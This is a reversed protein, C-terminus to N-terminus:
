HSTLTRSLAADLQGRDPAQGTLREVIASATDGAIERVNAMASATRTRITAESAAIKQALDAELAKRKVDAEAAAADRAAQAIGKSRDNAERLATEYAAGAAEAEAKMRHAEELDGGLRTAREHLIAGIRPLALKSMLYYLLGFALALWLIQAAFTDSRFPPFAGGHGETIEAIETHTGPTPGPVPGPAAGSTTPARSQPTALQATTTQAM